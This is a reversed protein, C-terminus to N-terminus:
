LNHDIVECIDRASIHKVYPDWEDGWGLNYKEFFFFLFFSMRTQIDIYGNVQYTLRTAFKGIRLNWM